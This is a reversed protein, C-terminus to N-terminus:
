LDSGMFTILFLGVSISYCNLTLRARWKRYPRGDLGNGYGFVLAICAAVMALIYGNLM